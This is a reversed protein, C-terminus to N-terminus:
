KSGLNFKAQEGGIIEGTTADIFYKKSMYRKVYEMDSLTEDTNQPTKEHEIKIIWVNRIRDDAKISFQDEINNELCYIFTNMKEISKEATIQIIPQNSFEKEKSQAINKAEEESIIFENNEFKDNVLGNISRVVIHNNIVGFTIQFEDYRNYIGNYSRSFYINWENGNINNCSKIEYDNISYGINNLTNKAIDIAMEKSIKELNSIIEDFENNIFYEFNGTEANFNINIGINKNSNTQNYENETYLAYYSNSENSYSRNLDIKKIEKDDYGLDKLFKTGKLKIEDESILNEKEEESIVAPKEQNIDYKIPEKWIKEYITYGAFVISSTLIIGICSTALVKIFKNNTTINKDSITTQIIKQYSSPTKIEKNVIDSIIKEYKDM